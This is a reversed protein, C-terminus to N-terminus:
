WVIFICFLLEEYYGSAGTEFLMNPSVKAADGAGDAGDVCDSVDASM